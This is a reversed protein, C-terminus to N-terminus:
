VVQLVNADVLSEPKNDEKNDTLSDPIDKQMEIENLFTNSKPSTGLNTEIEQEEM